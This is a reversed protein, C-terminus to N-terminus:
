RSHGIQIAHEILKEANSFSDDWDQQFVEVAESAKAMSTETSLQYHDNVAISVGNLLGDVPQLTVRRYGPRGEQRTDEVTVSRLGPREMVDAWHEQPTIAWGLGNWADPSEMTFASERNFGVASVPTESLLTFTGIALDRMLRFSPTAGSRLLFRDTTVQLLFATTSFTTVERHIVEIVAAEAEQESLLGNSAYWNPQFILPNFSGVLVINASRSKETPPM